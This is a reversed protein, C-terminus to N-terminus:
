LALTKLILMDLTGQVLFRVSPVQWSTLAGLLVARKTVARPTKQKPTKPTQKPGFNPSYM